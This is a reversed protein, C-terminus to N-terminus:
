AETKSSLFLPHSMPARAVSRLKMAVGIEVDGFSRMETAICSIM